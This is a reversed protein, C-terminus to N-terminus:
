VYIIPMSKSHHVSYMNNIKSKLPPSVHLPLIPKRKPGPKQIRKRIIIVAIITIIIILTLLIHQM